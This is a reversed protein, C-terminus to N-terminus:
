MAVAVTRKIFVNYKINIKYIYETICSQPFVHLAVFLFLFFSLINPCWKGLEM